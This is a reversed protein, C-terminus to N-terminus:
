ATMALSQFSRPLGVTNSIVETADSGRSSVHSETNANTLITRVEPSDLFQQAARVGARRHTVGMEQIPTSTANVAGHIAQSRSKNAQIYQPSINPYAALAAANTPEVPSSM